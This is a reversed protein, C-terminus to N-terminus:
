GVPQEFVADDQALTVKVGVREKNLGKFRGQAYPMLRWRLTKGWANQDKLPHDM